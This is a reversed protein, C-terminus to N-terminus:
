GIWLPSEALSAISYVTYFILRAVRTLKDVDIAEVEDSPRHYDAHGGAFFWLFPIGERAFRYHDGRFFLGEEPWLDPWIALGLEPHGGAVWHILSGLTSYEQGIVSIGDPGNRGIMDANVAAVVSELPVTPHEVWYQSGLMGLEEGSVALFVVSRAPPTDLSALAEAVEILAVTGSANDDAGNYISDGASDPERIGVHDMHAVFVIYTHRLQPDHGPLIGVVNPPDRYDSAHIRSPVPEEPENPDQPVPVSFRQYFTGGDGGPQLGFAAFEGAIYAATAELGPSPTARGAMEDSAVHALRQHIDTTTITAVAESLDNSGLGVPSGGDGCASFIAVLALGTVITRAQPIM